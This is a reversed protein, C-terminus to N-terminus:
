VCHLTMILLFVIFHAPYFYKCFLRFDANNAIRDLVNVIFSDKKVKAQPGEASWFPFLCLLSPLFMIVMNWNVTAMSMIYGVLGLLEIAKRQKCNYAFEFMLILLMGHWSYDAKILVSACILFMCSAAKICFLTRKNKMKPFEAHIALLALWGLCFTFCVNQSHLSILSKNIVFDFPIESLGAIVALGFLHKKRNVTYHFCEVLEWAFLPFALRGIMYMVIKREEFQGIYPLAKPIHDIMMAFIAIIKILYYHRTSIKDNMSLPRYTKGDIYKKHKM